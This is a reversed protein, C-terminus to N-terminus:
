RHPGAVGPRDGGAHSHPTGRTEKPQHSRESPTAPFGARNPGETMFTGTVLTAHLRMWGDAIAVCNKVSEEDLLYEEAKDLLEAAKTVAIEAPTM